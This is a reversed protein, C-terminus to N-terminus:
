QDATIKGVKEKIHKDRWVSINDFFAYVDKYNGQEDKPAWEPQHGGHFTSFMLQSILTSPDDSARYEIGNHEIILKGDIYIHAYGNDKGLGNVRVHYSLAYYRDNEFKFDHNKKTTGYQGTKNQCYIYTQIENGRHFMMRASWGTPKMANGGTIPRDPGLGHLKGGKVFQFEKDFKVDMCLTYEMGREGLPHRVVIRESGRESSKYQAKLAPSHDTGVGPEITLYQHSQLKAYLGDNKSTDFTEEFLMQAQSAVPSLLTIVVLMVTYLCDFKV